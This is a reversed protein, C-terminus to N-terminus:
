KQARLGSVTAYAKAVNQINEASLARPFTSANKVFGPFTTRLVASVFMLLMEEDHEHELLARTMVRYWEDKPYENARHVLPCEAYFVKGFSVVPKGLLLAEWGMSGTITAVASANALLKWSDEDPGLLRAAPVARIRNYFSLARRGRNSFHEKVYLRYGVPLSKALDEILAAQDLYYPAQVLTTAEPQFHIPYLVYQEGEVPREFLNLRKSLEARVVRSGRSFIAQTPRYLTPNEPEISRRKVLTWLTGVDEKSFAQFHQRAKMHSPRSPKERFGSVFNVVEIRDEDSLGEAQLREFRETTLQWDQLGRDSMAILNEMRASMAQWFPVDYIRALSLYVYSTLCSVSETFVFDPADDEFLTELRRYLLEILRLLRDYPLTQLHREAAIMRQISIGSQEEKARLYALDPEGNEVRSKIDRSFLILPDYDVSSGSLGREQDRGWVFGSFRTVGYRAALEQAVGDFLREHV